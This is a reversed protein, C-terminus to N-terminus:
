QPPRLVKYLNGIRESVLRETPQEGYTDVFWDLMRRTLEARTDPLQEDEAIRIIEIIFADWDYKPPRGGKHPALRDASAPRPEPQAISPYPKSRIPLLTDFLFAPYQENLKAWNKLNSRSVLSKEYNGVQHLANTSHDAPLDGSRIAGVLMQLAAAIESNEVDPRLFQNAAPDAGVWLCAAQKVHFLEVLMWVSPDSLDKDMM